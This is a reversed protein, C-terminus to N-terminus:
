GSRRRSLQRGAQLFIFHFTILDITILNMTILDIAILDDHVKTLPAVAHAPQSFIETIFRKLEVYQHAQAFSVVHVSEVQIGGTAARM